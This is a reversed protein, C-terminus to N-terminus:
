NAAKKSEPMASSIEDLSINSFGKFIKNLQARPGTFHIVTHRHLISDGPKLEAAPSVSELEYFPGLQKGNALPGDNYANVADGSFVPHSTDWQQNLYKGGHQLDFIVITLVNSAADFSAAINFASNPKIGLKGRNKGDAKFLLLQSKLMIRDKPIEGFYNTTIADHERYSTDLPIIITTEPSPTFMDLMWICPMGTNENWEESGSNTITNLTLYAVTHVGSDVALPFPCPIQSPELITIKRQVGIKL